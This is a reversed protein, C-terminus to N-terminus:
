HTAKKERSKLVLAVKRLEIGMEKFMEPQDGAAWIKSNLNRVVKGSATEPNIRLGLVSQSSHDALAVTTPAYNQELYTNMFEVPLTVRLWQNQQTTPDLAILTQSNLTAVSQDQFNAGFLTIGFNYQQSDVTDLQEPTAAFAFYKHFVSREPLHTKAGLLKLELVVSEIDEFRINARDFIPEIGNMHSGQWSGLKKVLIASFVKEGPCEPSVVWRSADISYAEPKFSLSSYEPKKSAQNWGQLLNTKGDFLIFGESSSVGGSCPALAEVSYPPKQVSTSEAISFSATLASFGLWLVRISHHMSAM